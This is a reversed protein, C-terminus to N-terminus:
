QVEEFLTVLDKTLKKRSYKRITEPRAGHLKGREWKRYYELLEESCGSEGSVIIGAGSDRLIKQSSGRVPGAGLVANGSALYEFLKGPIHGSYNGAKEMFLLLLDSSRMIDVATKHPVYGRYETEVRPGTLERIADRYRQQIEGALLLKVSGRKVQPDAALEGIARFFGPYYRNENLGGVYSIVFRGTEKRVRAGAELDAPDYGNTIVCINKRDTEILEGFHDSVTVVCAADALTKRELFADIRNMIGLRNHRYYHIGSWPDRLDAVWPLGSKKALSQAIRHVTPPPSSSFILAPREHRLIRKGTRVAPGKWWKKADPVICNLRVFRAIRKKPPLDKQSLIGVPVARDEPEGTFKRYLSFPEFSRSRYVRVGQPVEAQLTEDTAPYEGNKVTLILPEWGYDRLYKVFKLVRQVGPGGAPPWYYTIILVKKTM